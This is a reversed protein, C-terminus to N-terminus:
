KTKEETITTEISGDPYTIQILGRQAGDLLYRMFAFTVYFPENLHIYSSRILRTNLDSM